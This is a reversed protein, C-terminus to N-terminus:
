EGEKKYKKCEEKPKKYKRVTFVEGWPANKYHYICDTKECISLDCYIIRNEM